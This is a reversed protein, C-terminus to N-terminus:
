VAVNIYMCTHTCTCMYMYMYMHTTHLSLSERSQMRRPQQLKSEAVANGELKRQPRGWSVGAVLVRAERM